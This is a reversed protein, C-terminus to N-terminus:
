GITAPYFQQQFYQKYQAPDYVPYGLDQRVGM